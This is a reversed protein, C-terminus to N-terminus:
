NLHLISSFYSMVKQNNCVHAVLTKKGVIGAGIIPLVTPASPTPNNQLLINIGQQKEIHRGFMFNDIYLYTDYPSRFMRECGGLLLVFETMNSVM